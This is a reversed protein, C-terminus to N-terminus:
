LQRLLIFLTVSMHYVSLCVSLGVVSPHAIAYLM